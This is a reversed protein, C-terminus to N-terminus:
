TSLFGCNELVPLYRMRDENLSIAGRLSSRVIRSSPNDQDRAMNTPAWTSNYKSSYLVSPQDAGKVKSSM